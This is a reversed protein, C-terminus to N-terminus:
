MVAMALRAASAASSATGGYSGASGRPGLAVSGGGGSATAAAAAGAVVVTGVATGAAVAPSSSQVAEAAVVDEICTVSITPPAAGAATSESPPLEDTLIALVVTAGPETIYVDLAANGTAPDYSSVSATGPGQIVIAGAAQEAGGPLPEPGMHASVAAPDGATCDYVSSGGVTMLVFYPGQLTSQSAAPEQTM